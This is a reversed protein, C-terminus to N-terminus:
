KVEFYQYPAKDDDFFHDPLCYAKKFMTYISTHADNAYDDPTVPCDLDGANPVCPSCGRCYTYYPSRLIIICNMDDSFDMEYEEDTYYFQHCDNQYSQCWEDVITDFEEDVLSEDMYNNKLCELVNGDEIATKLDSEFEDSANDYLVDASDDILGMLADPDLTHQSICGFHIGTEFNMNPFMSRMDSM